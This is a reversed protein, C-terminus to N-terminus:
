GVLTARGDVDSESAHPSSITCCSTVWLPPSLVVICVRHWATDQMCVEHTHSRGRPLYIATRPMRSPIFFYSLVLPDGSGTNILQGGPQALRDEVRSKKCESSQHCNTDM